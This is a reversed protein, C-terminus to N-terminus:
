AFLLVFFLLIISFNSFLLFFRIKLKKRSKIKKISVEAGFVDETWIEAIKLLFCPNEFKIYTNGIYTLDWNANTRPRVEFATFHRWRCREDYFKSNRSLNYSEMDTNLKLGICCTSIYNELPTTCGGVGTVRSAYLFRAVRPGNFMVLLLMSIM